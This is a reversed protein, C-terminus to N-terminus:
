MMANMSHLGTAGAPHPPRPDVVQPTGMGDFCRVTLTHQGAQFPWDYRWVVWTTESLPDRLQAPAWAGNDVSVEVRSIGRAGAFAIGGVPVVQLQTMQPMMMDTAVTDIVATSQIQAERDWGREVWYGAEMEGILEISEIWKPQKMGYHDPVYVRLPYGHDAPLPLGDWNYCLMVRPDAQVVNRALVEHFGDASRIRLHTAEPRPRVEALVEQLRAGSWRTTSILDGAVRNSICEMTVFQDVPQFAQLEALSFDRPQEVLGGIRLRWTAPDVLQPRTNIDIRYHRAVPTLEARTGRVAQVAAGANPLPNTESWPRAGGALAVERAGRRTSLAGVAAGAVTMVATAGAMRVLFTRRDIWEVADGVGGRGLRPSLRAFSWALALGWLLLM